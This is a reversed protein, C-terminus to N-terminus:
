TLPHGDRVDIHTGFLIPDGVHHGVDLRNGLLFPHNGDRTSRHELLGVIQHTAKTRNFDSCFVTSARASGAKGIPGTRHKISLRQQGDASEVRTPIMCFVHLDAKAENFRSTGDNVCPVSQDLVHRLRASRMEQGFPSSVGASVESDYSVMRFTASLTRTKIKKATGRHNEAEKWNPEADHERTNRGCPSQHRSIKGDVVIREIHPLPLNEENRENQEENM